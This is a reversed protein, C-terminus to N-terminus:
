FYVATGLLHGTMLDGASQLKAAMLVDGISCSALMNRVLLSHAQEETLVMVGTLKLGDSLLHLVDCSLGCTRHWAIEILAKNSLM